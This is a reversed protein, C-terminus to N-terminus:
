DSSTKRAASAMGNSSATTSVGMPLIVFLAFLLLAPSLFFYAWMTRRARMSLQRRTRRRAVQTASTSGGGGLPAEDVAERGNEGSSEMARARGPGADSM